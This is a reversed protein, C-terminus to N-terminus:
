PALPCGFASALDRAAAEVDRGHATSPPAQGPRTISLSVLPCLKQQLARIQLRNDGLVVILVLAVITGVILATRQVRTQRDVAETLRDMTARFEEGQEVWSQVRQDLTQPVEPDPEAPHPNTTPM